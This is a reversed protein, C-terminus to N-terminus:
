AQLNCFQCWWRRMLKRVTIIIQLHTVNVLHRVKTIETRVLTLTDLTVEVLIRKSRKRTCGAVLEKQETTHKIQFSTVLEKPSICSCVLAFPLSLVLFPVFFSQIQTLPSLDFDM